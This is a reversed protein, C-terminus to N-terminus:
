TYCARRRLLPFCLPNCNNNRIPGHECSRSDGIYRTVESDPPDSHFYEECPSKYPAYRLYAHLIEIAFKCRRPLFENLKLKSDPWPIGFFDQEIELIKALCFANEICYRAISPKLESRNEFFTVAKGETDHFHKFCEPLKADLHKQWKKRVKWRLNEIERSFGLALLKEWDILIDSM